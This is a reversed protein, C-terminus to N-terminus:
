SNLNNKSNRNFNDLDDLVEKTDEAIDLIEDVTIKGDKKAEKIKNIISM